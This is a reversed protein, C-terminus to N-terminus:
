KERFISEMGRLLRLGFHDKGQLTPGSARLVKITYVLWQRENDDKSTFPLQV